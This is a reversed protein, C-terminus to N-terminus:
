CYHIATCAVYICIYYLEIRHSRWACRSRHARARSARASVNWVYTLKYRAYTTSCAFRDFISIETGCDCRLSRMQGCMIQQTLGLEIYDGWKGRGSTFVCMIVIYEISYLIRSHIKIHISTGTYYIFTTVVCM